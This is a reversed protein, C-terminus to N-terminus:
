CSSCVRLPSDTMRANSCCSLKLVCNLSFSLKDVEKADHLIESSWHSKIRRVNTDQVITVMTESKTTKYALSISTAKTPVTTAEARFKVLSSRKATRKKVSMSDFNFPKM